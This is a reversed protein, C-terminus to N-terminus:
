YNIQKDTPRLDWTKIKLGKMICNLSIELDMNKRYKM